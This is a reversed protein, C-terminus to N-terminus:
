LTRLSNGRFLEMPLTRVQPPLARGRAIAQLQSSMIQAAASGIGRTPQLISYLTLGWGPQTGVGDFGILSVDEPIKLGEAELAMLARSTLGSNSAFIATPMQQRLRERILRCSEGVGSNRLFVADEPDVAYGRQKLADVFGEHRRRATYNNEEAFIGLIHRHGANLLEDAAMRAAAVNDIVVASVRDALNPIQKDILTVPIGLELPKLLHCGDENQPLNIIGDVGKKLLFDISEIETRKRVEDTGPAACCLATGYGYVRLDLQIQHIIEMMFSNTLAPMVLGVYGTRKTKLNRATENIQFHLAKIAEEILSQNKPLVHGGNLYKSITALGLGTRQAIDKITAAM